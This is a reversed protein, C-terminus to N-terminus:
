FKITKAEHAELTQNSKYLTTKECDMEGFNPKWIPYCASGKNIIRRFEDQLEHKNRITTTLCKFKQFM